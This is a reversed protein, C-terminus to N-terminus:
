YKYNMLQKKIYKIQQYNAASDIVLTVYIM